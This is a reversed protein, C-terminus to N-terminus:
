VEEGELAELDAAEIVIGTEEEEAEKGEEEEEALIGETEEPFERNSKNREFFFFSTLLGSSMLGERFGAVEDILGEDDGRETFEGEEFLSDDAIEEYETAVDAEAEEEEENDFGEEFSAWRDEAFVEDELGSLKPIAEDADWGM